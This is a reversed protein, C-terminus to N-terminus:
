HGPPHTPRSLSAGLTDFFEPRLHRPVHRGVAMHHGSEHLQLLGEHWQRLGRAVSQPLFRGHQMQAGHRVSVDVSAERVCIWEADTANRGYLLFAAALVVIELGNFATVMPLGMLFFFAGVLVSPLAVCALALVMGRPTLSCNRGLKWLLAGDPLVAPAFRTRVARDADHLEPVQGFSTPRPPKLPHGEKLRLDAVFRNTRCLHAPCAITM